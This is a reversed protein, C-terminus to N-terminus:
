KPPSLRLLKDPPPSADISEYGVVSDDARDAAAPSAGAKRNDVDEGEARQGDAAAPLSPSICQEAKDGGGFVVVRLNGFPATFGKPPAPTGAFAVAGASSKDAELAALLVPQNAKLADYYKDAVLPRESDMEPPWSQPAKDAMCGTVLLGSLGAIM